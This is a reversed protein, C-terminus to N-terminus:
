KHHESPEVLAIRCDLLFSFKERKETTSIGIFRVILEVVSSEARRVKQQDISIVQEVLEALLENKEARMQAAFKEALHM